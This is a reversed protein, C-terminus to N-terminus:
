VEYRESPEPPHPVLLAVCIIGLLFIHSFTKLNVLSLAMNLRRM